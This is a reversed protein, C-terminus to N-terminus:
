LRILNAEAAPKEYVVWTDSLFDHACRKEANFWCVIYGLNLGMLQSLSRAVLERFIVTVWNLPAGGPQVVKLGFIMKGLTQQFYRTMLIFYFAGTVGLFLANTHLVKYLFSSESMEPLLLGWIVANLGAIVLLDILFAWLRVWFGAARYQPSNVEAPAAAMTESEPASLYEDYETM